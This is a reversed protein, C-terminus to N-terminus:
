LHILKLEIDARQAEPSGPFTRKVGLLAHRAAEPLNMRKFVVGKAFQAAPAKHGSPNDKLIKNFNVLAGGYNKDNLDMLGTLYRVDDLREGNPYKRYYTTTAYNFARRNATQYRDAIEAYLASESATELESKQLEKQVFGHNLIPAPSLSTTSTEQKQKRKLLLERDRRDQDQELKERRALTKKDFATPQSHGVPAHTETACAAFVFSSAVLLFIKKMM